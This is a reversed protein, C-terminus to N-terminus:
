SVGLMTLEFKNFEVEHERKIISIDLSANERPIKERHVRPSQEEYETLILIEKKERLCSETLSCKGRSQCSKPQSLEHIQELIDPGDLGNTSRLRNMAADRNNQLKLIWSPSHRLFYYRFVVRLLLTTPQTKIRGIDARDACKYM